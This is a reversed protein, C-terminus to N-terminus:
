FLFLSSQDDEEFDIIRNFTFVEIWRYHRKCIPCYAHVYDLHEQGSCDSDYYEVEMKAGCVKCNDM